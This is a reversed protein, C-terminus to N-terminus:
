AAETEACPREASTLRAFAERIDKAATGDVVDEVAGKALVRGQHLVVVQDGPSVEEILHTAWLVGVGEEAALRRVHRILAARSGVDLGVTPEDLLLLRPAHLLARAIEVRRVQGGSLKRVKEGACEAVDLRELAAGARRRAEGPAIGHLAAHYVLNQMVTLDLDITRPQFVVGLRRLAEGSVSAIDHGFVRM